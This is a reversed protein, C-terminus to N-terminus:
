EAARLQRIDVTARVERGLLSLLVSVRNRAERELFIADVVRGVREIAIKEGPEFPCPLEDEREERAKAREFDEAERLRIEAIIADAITAPVEGNLLVKRVGLTSRMPSWQGNERPRAFLYGPFLPLDWHRLREQGRAARM